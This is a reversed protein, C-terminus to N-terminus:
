KIFRVTVSMGSKLGSYDDLRIYTDQTNIDFSAMPDFTRQRKRKVAQVVKYVEGRYIKGKYADTYIEVKQGEMVKGVDTEDLEARVRLKDTNILRLVPTGIDVTENAKRLREVILGNFPSQIIYDKLLANNYKLESAFREVEARTQEIEEERAGKRFKQLNTMAENLEEAAVKINEEARELEVYTTANKSYLRKQREYDGKAKEYVAEARNARNRAMEIDEARYGTELEKLRARAEKLMAEAMKVKAAIKVNDLMILPQGKKVMDGEDAKIEMILGPVQSGIEIEEESEVVGKATLIAEKIQPVEKIIERTRKKLLMPGLFALVVAVAVLIAIVLIGLRSNKM